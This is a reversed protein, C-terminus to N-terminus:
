QIEYVGAISYHFNDNCDTIEVYPKNYDMGSEWVVHVDGVFDNSIPEHVEGSYEFGGNDKLQMSIPLAYYIVTSHDDTVSNSFEIIPEGEDVYASMFCDADYSYWVTQNIEDFAAFNYADTYTGNPVYEITKPEAQTVTEPVKAQQNNNAANLYVDVMAEEAGDFMQDYFGGLGNYSVPQDYGKDSYATSFAEKVVLYEVANNQREGDIEFYCINFMGNDPNLNFQILVNYKNSGDQVFGDFQIVKNGNDQTTIFTWKPKKFYLKFAEKYNVMEYNQLTSEQIAEVYQRNSSGDPTIAGDLFWGILLIGLVGLLIDKTKKMTKKWGEETTKDDGTMYFIVKCVKDAISGKRVRTDYYSKNEDEVKPNEENKREEGM